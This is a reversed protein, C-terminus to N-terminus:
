SSVKQEGARRCPSTDGDIVGKSKSETKSGLFRSFHCRFQQRRCNNRGVFELLRSVLQTSIHVQGWLFQPTPCVSDIQIRAFSQRPDTIPVVAIRARNRMVQSSIWRRIWIFTKLEDVRSLTAVVNQNVPQFSLDFFMAH